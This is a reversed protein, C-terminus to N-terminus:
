NDMLNLHHSAGECKSIWSFYCCCIICAFSPLCPLRLSWWSSLEECLLCKESSLTNMADLSNDVRKQLLRKQFCSCIYLKTIIYVLKWLWDWTKSLLIVLVILFFIKTVGAVFSFPYVDLGFTTLIISM